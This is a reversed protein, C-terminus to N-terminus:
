KTFTVTAAAKTKFWVATGAPVTVNKKIYGFEDCWGVYTEDTDEDYGDSAYYYNDYGGKANPVMITAANKEWDPVNEDDPTWSQTPTVSTVVSQIDFAMPFPNGIITYGAGVDTTISSETPVAGAETLSTDLTKNGRVWIGLGVTLSIDKKIYGFEDCWGAYTEETDDDYGDSAFYYNDYGGKANPIMLTTAQQEWGPVNEDEPTWSQTGADTTTVIKDVTTAGQVADFQVATLVYANKAIEKTNYGVVYSPGNRVTFDRM